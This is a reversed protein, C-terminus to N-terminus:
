GPWSNLLDTQTLSRPMGLRAQAYISFEVSPIPSRTRSAAEECRGLGPSNRWRENPGGRVSGLRVEICGGPDASRM